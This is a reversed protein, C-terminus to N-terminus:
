FRTNEVYLDLANCSFRRSLVDETVMTCLKSKLVNHLSAEKMFIATLFVYILLWRGSLRARTLTHQHYVSKPSTHPSTVDDGTIMVFLLPHWWWWWWWWSYPILWGRWNVNAMTAFSNEEWVEDHHNTTTLVGLASKIVVKILDVLWPISALEQDIYIFNKRSRTFGNRGILLNFATTIFLATKQSM